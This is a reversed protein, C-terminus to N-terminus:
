VSSSVSESHQRATVEIGPALLKVSTVSSTWEPWHAGDRMVDWVVPPPANVETSISFASTSSHLYGWATAIAIIGLVSIGIVKRGQVSGVGARAQIGKAM